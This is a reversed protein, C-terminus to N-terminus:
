LEIVDAASGLGTTAMDAVRRHHTFLIPQVAGGIEALAKLGTATRGDDFSAFLDDGVFPPPEADRAFSELYALRLALFLQDRTGESLAKLGIEAGGARRALILPRDDDDYGQGLGAFAGGTILRFLDGARALMPGHDAGRKAEIARGLLAAALSLALWSEATEALEAEALVRRARELNLSAASAEAELAARRAEATAIAAAHATEDLRGLADDLADPAAGDAIHGIQEELAALEAALRDREALRGALAALAAADDRGQPPAPDQRDITAPEALRAALRAAAAGAQGAEADAAQTEAAAETRRREAAERRTRAERAAALRAELAAVAADRSLEVLDPATEAVLTALTAAVMEAERTAEAQRRRRDDLAALREPV